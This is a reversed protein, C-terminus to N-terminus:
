FTVHGTESVKVNTLELISPRMFLKGRRNPLDLTLFWVRRGIETTSSGFYFEESQQNAAKSANKQNAQAGASFLQSGFQILGFCLLGALVFVISCYRWVRM